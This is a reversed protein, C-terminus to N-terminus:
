TGVHTLFDVRGIVTRRHDRSSLVPDDRPMLELTGTQSCACDSVADRTSMQMADVAADVGDAV